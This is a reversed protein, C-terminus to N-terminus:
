LDILKREKFMQQVERRVIDKFIRNERFITLALCTETHGNGSAWHLPTSKCYDPADLVAKTKVLRCPPPSPLPRPTPPTQTQPPAMAALKCSAGRAM